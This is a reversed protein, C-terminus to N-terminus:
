QSAPKIERLNAYASRIQDFGQILIACDVGVQLWQAGRHAMLSAFVPDPGMGCGVLCGAKRAQRIIVEFAHVLCPDDMDGQAGLAWSLDAPGIVISDLGPVAVIEAIAAYAEATEIMVALFISENARAVFEPTANRFYDSPVRPGFGRHGVPPYRCDDVLQKVEGVTRVQPIIIGDAGSDLVPKVQATGGGALRVIGPLGHHRAALLHASLAEPSMGGHELDIWIFDSSAALADTVMPDSFTIGPGLCVKGTKLETRFRNIAEFTM